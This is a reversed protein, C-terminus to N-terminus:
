QEDIDKFDECVNFTDVAIGNRKDCHWDTMSGIYCHKCYYCIREHAM